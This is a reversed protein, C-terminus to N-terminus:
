PATLEQFGRTLKYLREDDAADWQGETLKSWAVYLGYAVWADRRSNNGDHKYQSLLQRIAQETIETIDFYSWTRPSSAPSKSLASHAM